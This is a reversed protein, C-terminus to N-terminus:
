WESQERKLLVDKAWNLRAMKQQAEASDGVKDPHYLIAARKYKKQIQETPTGFEVGLVAYYGQSGQPGTLKPGSGAGKAEDEAM